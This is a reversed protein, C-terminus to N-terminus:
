RKEGSASKEVRFVSVVRAESHRIEYYRCPALHWFVASKVTPISPFVYVVPFLCLHCRYTLLVICDFLTIKIVCPRTNMYVYINLLLADLVSGRSVVCFNAPRDFVVILGANRSSYFAILFEGIRTKYTLMSGSGIFTASSM